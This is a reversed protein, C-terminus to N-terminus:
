LSLKRGLEIRLTSLNSILPKQTELRLLIGADHEATGFQPTEFSIFGAGLLVAPSYVLSKTSM